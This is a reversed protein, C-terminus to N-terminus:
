AFGGAAARATSRALPRPRPGAPRGGRGRLRLPRRSRKGLTAHRRGGALHASEPQPHTVADAARRPACRLVDLPHGGAFPPQGAAAFYLVAGLAYLDARADVSRGDAQEPAMYQPTGAVVGTRTLGVDDAARALGFDTIKLLSPDASKAFEASKLVSSRSSYSQRGTKFDASDAFDASLLVNAPKIDRHVLGRAHAAALGAAVQLGTQLVAEVPLPGDRAVLEQLSPGEVHQMVLYPLGRFEDVAHIAVVNPHGVAAAARAERTFRQRAAASVALQPALVKLAVARHLRPDLAKLVIGMGGRGIEGLVEYPGLRGLSGAATTPELFDLPDDPSDDPATHLRDILERLAPEDTRPALRRPVDAWTAPDAACVELTQQCDLCAELHAALADREAAPLEDALLARWRPEAPCDTM